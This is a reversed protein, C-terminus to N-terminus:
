PTGGGGGGESRPSFQLHLLHQVSRQDHLRQFAGNGLAPQAELAATLTAKLQATDMYGGTELANSLQTYAQRLQAAQEPQFVLPIQLTQM